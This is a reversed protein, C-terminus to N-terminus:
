QWPFPSLFFFPSSFLSCAAKEHLEQAPHHRIEKNSKKGEIQHKEIMQKVAESQRQLDGEVRQGDSAVKGM